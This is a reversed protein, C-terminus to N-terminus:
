GKRKAKITRDRRFIDHRQGVIAEGDEPIPVLALIVCGIAANFGKVTLDHAATFRKLDTGRRASIWLWAYRSKGVAIEDDDPLIITDAQFTAAIGSM